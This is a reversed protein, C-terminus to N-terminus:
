VRKFKGEKRNKKLHHFSSVEGQMSIYVGSKKTVKAFNIAMALNATAEIPDISFPIMAGTLVIVRDSVRDNLYTATIHMTDTGHIVVVNGELELIKQYIAERDDSSMDLSDKFIMGELNINYTFTSLIKEIALNNSPVDLEGTIPNYIKNFTGGTNIITM